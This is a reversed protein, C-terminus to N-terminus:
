KHVPVLPGPGAQQEKCKGWAKYAQRVNIKNHRRGWVKSGWNRGQPKGEQWVSGQTGKSGGGNCVTGMRDRGMGGGSRATSRNGKGCGGWGKHKVEGQAGKSGM